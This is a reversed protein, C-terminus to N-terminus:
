LLLRHSNGIRETQLGEVGAREAFSGWGAVAEGVEDLIKRAKPAKVNAASAAELLDDRTFDDRKGALSMQHRSTWAGSPNYSYIVDYAPALHWTGARDMLFSLNKTHDDPRHDPPGAPFDSSEGVNM